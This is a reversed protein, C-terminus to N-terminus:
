TQKPALSRFSRNPKLKCGRATDQSSLQHPFAQPPCLAGPNQPLLMQQSLVDRNLSPCATFAGRAGQLQVVNELVNRAAVLDLLGLEPSHTSSLSRCPLTGGPCQQHHAPTHSRCHQTIQPVFRTHPKVWGPSCLLAWAATSSIEASDPKPVAPAIGAITSLPLIGM